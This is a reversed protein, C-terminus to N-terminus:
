AVDSIPSLDLCVSGLVKGFESDVAYPLHFADFSRSSSKANINQLIDFTDFCQKILVNAVEAQLMEQVNDCVLVLRRANQAAVENGKNEHITIFRQTAKKIPETSEKSNNSFNESGNIWEM